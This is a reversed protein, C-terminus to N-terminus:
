WFMTLATSAAAASIRSAGACGAFCSTVTQHTCRSCLRGLAGLRAAVAEDPARELALLVRAQDRAPRGVGVVHHKGPHEVRRDHARRLRVGPYSRDVGRGRALVVAHHGHEGPLVEGVHRGGARHHPDRRPDVHEHGVVPRQSAALDAVDALRDRHHDAPVLVSHDVRGLLDHDLVVRQRHHDVGLLRELVAGRDDVLLEARVLHELPRQRAAVDLRGEPVGIHHDLLADDVM